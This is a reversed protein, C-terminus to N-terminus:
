RTTLGDYTLAVQSGFLPYDIRTRYPRFADADWRLHRCVNSLHETYWPAETVRCSDLGSGLSQVTEAMELRDIDRSCDNVDAVGQAGTNYLLLGVDSPGQIDRHLILDFVLLQVPTSIDTYVFRKRRPEAPITRPLEQQNNEIFVLDLTAKPGFRKDGLTYHMVNGAQQMNFPPLPATSYDPIILGEIGDVESGDLSRPHRPKPTTTSGHPASVRRTALKFTVNPRLRQLGMYGFTWVVDLFDDEASPAIFASAIYLDAAIGKLQSMARYISQKRRTEFGRRADPLWSALIADFGSRDGAEVRIMEEFENVSEVFDAILTEPVGKKGAATAFTRLPDPGPLLHLVAIPDRNASARLLRSALMKDVGMERALKIPGQPRTEVSDVVRSIRESLRKGLDSVRSELTSAIDSQTAQSM